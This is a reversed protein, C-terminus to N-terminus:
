GQSPTSRSNMGFISATPSGSSYTNVVASNTARDYYGVVFPVFPIAGFWDWPGIQLLFYVFFFRFLVRQWLPWAPRDAAPVPGSPEAVPPAFTTHVPYSTTPATM